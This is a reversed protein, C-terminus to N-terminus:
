FTVLSTGKKYESWCKTVM